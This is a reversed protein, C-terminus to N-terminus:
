QEPSIQTKRIDWHLMQKGQAVTITQVSNDTASRSNQFPPNWYTILARTTRRSPPDPPMAWGGGEGLFIQSKLGESITEPTNKPHFQLFNSSRSSFSIKTNSAQLISPTVGNQGAFVAYCNTIRTLRLFHEWVSLMNGDRDASPAICLYFRQKLESPWKAWVCVYAVHADFEQYLFNNLQCM